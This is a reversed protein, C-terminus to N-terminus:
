DEVDTGNSDENFPRSTAVLFDWTLLNWNGILTIFFRYWSDLLNVQAAFFITRVLSDFNDGDIHIKFSAICSFHLNWQIRTFTLFNTVSWHSCSNCWSDLLLGFNQHLHFLVPDQYFIFDNSSCLSRLCCISLLSHSWSSIPIKAPRPPPEYRDDDEVCLPKIKELKYEM